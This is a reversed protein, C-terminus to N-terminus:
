RTLNRKNIRVRNVRKEKNPRNAKKPSKLM